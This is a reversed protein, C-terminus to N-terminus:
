PKSAGADADSRAITLNAFDGPSLDGVWLGIGGHTRGGLTQVHLSPAAAGNVFIRLDTGRLSLRLHVWANPKPAPMLATEYKGPSDARLREWSYAPYSTYQLAHGRRVTDSSQYNFPRLYVIDCATDAACRFAIGPFSKQFVDRGRVDVEIDGNAFDIAPTWIMGAGPADDLHLIVRQASDRLTAHRNITSWDHVAAALDIRRHSTDRLVRTQATADHLTLSLGFALISFRRM